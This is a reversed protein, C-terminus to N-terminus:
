LTRKGKRLKYKADFNRLRQIDEDKKVEQIKTRRGTARYSADQVAQLRRFEEKYFEKSIEPADANGTSYERLKRRLYRGLPMIRKGHRLASPVDGQKEVLDFELVVSAVDHMADAGIGPRNSMRPFEPHRGELRIDEKDTMKKMVYGAVYQASSENLDGIDIDGRAWVEGVMRCWDCCEAWLPRDSGPRRLTRGRECLPFSFMALHYHPRQTEDGYEGAAYFRFRRGTEDFFRARLRKLFNRLDEPSLNGRPDSESVRPLHEDDYSLSVFANDEYMGAELMIRHSWVRRKNVRCSTCQGCGVLGVGTVLVPHDCLM